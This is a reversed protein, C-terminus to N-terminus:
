APRPPPPEAYSILELLNDDPDRFYVSMGKGRGGIRFVPGEIIPVDLRALHEVASGITGPWVFCYDGGGVMPHAAKLTIRNDPPHLNFKNRGLSISVVMAKGERWKELGLPIAGLVRQYFEVSREIDGVPMAVHDFEIEDNM